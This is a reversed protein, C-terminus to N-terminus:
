KKYKLLNEYFKEKLYMFDDKSLALREIIEILADEICEYERMNHKISREGDFVIWKENQRDICVTDEAYGDLSYLLNSIGISNMTEKFCQKIMTEQM